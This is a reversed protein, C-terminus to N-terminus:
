RQGQHQRTVEEYRKKFAAKADGLTTAIGNHPPPLGYPVGKIAWQWKAVGLIVDAYIRGVVREDELVCYDEDASCQVWGEKLAQVITKRLLLTMRPAPQGSFGKPPTTM